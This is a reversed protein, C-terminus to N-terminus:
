NVPETSPVDNASLIHRINVTTHLHQIELAEDNTSTTCGAVIDTTLLADGSVARLNAQVTMAFASKTSDFRKLTIVPQGNKDLLYFPPHIEAGDVRVKYEDLALLCHKYLTDMERLELASIYLDSLVKEGRHKYKALLEKDRFSTLESMTTRGVSQVTTDILIQGRKVVTGSEDKEFAMM